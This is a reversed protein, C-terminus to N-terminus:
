SAAQGGGPSQRRRKELWLEALEIEIEPFPETRVKDDEAFLGLVMWRGTELRFVDLTNALPDILWLHSIGHQAYLPMKETKDIRASGPSLIECVWDPVVSIWNHEESEPFREERWGALDPVLIDEGLSIEPDMLIIWGGPGGGGGFHYPILRGELSSATYIHKRSPRPTVILEGDIIEGTMNKPINLLDDYTARKKAPESM